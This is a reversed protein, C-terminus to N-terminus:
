FLAWSVRAEYEFTISVAKVGESYGSCACSAKHVPEYDRKCTLSMAERLYGM